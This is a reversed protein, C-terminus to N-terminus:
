GVEEVVWDKLEESGKMDICYLRVNVEERIKNVLEKLESCESRDKDPQSGKFFLPCIAFAPGKVDFSRAFADKNKITKYYTYSELICRLLTEESDPKKLELIRLENTKEDFSLLDIKGAADKESDKLPTQYDLIRGLGKIAGVKFMRQAILDEERGSGESIKGNERFDEHSKTYYPRDKLRGNKAGTREIQLIGNAFDDFYECVWHAVIESYRVGERTKGQYNVASANYLGSWGTLQLRMFRKIESKSYKKERELKASM